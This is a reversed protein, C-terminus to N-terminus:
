LNLKFVKSVSKKAKGADFEDVHFGDRSAELQDVRHSM